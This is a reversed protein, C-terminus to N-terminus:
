PAGDPGPAPPSDPRTEADDGDGPGAPLASDARDAAVVPDDFEEEEPGPLAGARRERDYEVLWWGALAGVVLLDAVLYVAAQAVVAVAVGVVTLGALLALVSVFPLRAIGPM